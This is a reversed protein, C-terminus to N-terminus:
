QMVGFTIQAGFSRPAGPPPAPFPAARRVVALSEEDLDAEGSSQLLAVSTVQGTEDVSFGVAAVGRAGREIATEPYHKARALMGFVIVKYDMPEDGGEVPLPVAVARFIEPGLDYPLALGAPTGRWAEGDGATTASATRAPAKDAAPPSRQM